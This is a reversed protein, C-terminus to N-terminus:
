ENRQCGGVALDSSSTLKQEVLSLDPISAPVDRMIIRYKEMPGKEEASNRVEERVLTLPQPIGQVVMAYFPLSDNKSTRHMIAIRNTASFEAFRGHNLREFSIVPIKTGRWDLDGLLWETEPYNAEPRSYDQIGAICVSPILLPRQQMPILVSSIPKHSGSM